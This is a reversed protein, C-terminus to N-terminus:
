GKPTTGEGRRRFHPQCGSCGDCVSIRTEFVQELTRIVNEERNQTHLVVQEPAITLLTSVILDEHSFPQEMLEQVSEDLEKTRLPEGEEDLLRFQRRGTHLVHVLNLKPEQVSVFYRLLEIFERYEQDLLYEDIAHEVLKVLGNRYRKMRFRFFGDVAVSRHQTLYQAVQRAMRDKRRRCVPEESESDNLLDFTYREIERSDEPDRYRFQKKIIHRIFNPENVSLLYEAVAIGLFRPLGEKKKGAKPHSFLFLTRNGQDAEQLRCSLGTQELLALQDNLLTRM